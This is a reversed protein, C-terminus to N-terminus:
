RIRTLRRHGILLAAIGVFVLFHEPKREYRRHLRRCGAPWSVTPEAVWRHRGLRQSSEVGERAIRHRMDHSRLWRRLHDHDYSKDGHLKGPRRRRPGRRFRTLPIGRVLPMLGQSDHLDAASIGLSLPPGNRNTDPPNEIRAQRSRESETRHAARKKADGISVSDIACRSRDPAGLAGLEDLVIRHLRAWVRTRSWQAFRRHVAPWTM